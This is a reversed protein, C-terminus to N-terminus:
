NFIFDNMLTRTDYGRLVIPGRFSFFRWRRSVVLAIMNVLQTGFYKQPSATRVAQYMTFLIGVQTWLKQSVM